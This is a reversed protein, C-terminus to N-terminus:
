IVANINTQGVGVNLNYSIILLQPFVILVIEFNRVFAWQAIILM